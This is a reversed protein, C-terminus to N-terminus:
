RQKRLWRRHEQRKCERCERGDKRRRTNEPTFEHGNICHTKSANISAVHGPHNLRDTLELHSPNCCSRNRCRHHIEKGRPILGNESSWMVRHVYLTRGAVTMVGYGGPVKAGPWLWCPESDGGAKKKVREAALNIADKTMRAAEWSRVMGSTFRLVTWGLLGATSYKRCDSEFGAGRTHRGRTWQGGECEAALMLTPWAFDFRYSAKRGKPGMHEEFRYEREPEPLKLIRITGLFDNELGSM